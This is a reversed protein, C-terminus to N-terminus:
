VPIDNGSVLFDPKGAEAAMKKMTEYYNTLATTGTQRKYILYARWIPDDQWRPDRWRGDNLNEPVGGWEKCRDRLYARVDFTELDIERLVDRGIAERERALYKRFGAVSWEGFAKANPFANFSDWPSFNDVWLGDIGADLAQRLSAKLYEIWIPCATDKGASFLGTYGAKRVTQWEEPTFGPDPPGLPADDIKLLGTLPGRPQKTAPDIRNVERNYDYEFFVRGLVDKSCGADLVRSTRPDVEPGFLRDPDANGEIGIYGEAIRGDPYIMPPCGYRSDTRTWPRVAPDDLFYNSIGIWRMEGTGDFSHWGWHSNFTQLHSPERQNRVWSGDPNKKLQAINEQTTGFGEFWSLVKIGAQHLRELSAKGGLVRDHQSFTGWCPDDAIGSLVVNANAEIAIEPDGIQVIRPFDDWFPREAGCASLGFFLFALFLTLPVAFRNPGFIPNCFPKM